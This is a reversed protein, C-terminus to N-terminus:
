SLLMYINVVCSLTHLEDWYKDIHIYIQEVHSGCTLNLEGEEKACWFCIIGEQDYSSCLM